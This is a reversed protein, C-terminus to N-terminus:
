TLCSPYVLHHLTRDFRRRHLAHLAFSCDVILVVLTSAQRTSSFARFHTPYALWSQCCGRVSKARFLLKKVVPFLPLSVSLLSCISLTNWADAPTLFIQHVLVLRSSLCALIDFRPEARGPTEPPSRTGSRQRRREEGDERTREGMMGKEKRKGRPYGFYSPGFTPKPKSCKRTAQTSTRPVECASADQLSGDWRSM